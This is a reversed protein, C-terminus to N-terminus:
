EEDGQLRKEIWRVAAIVAAQTERRSPSSDGKIDARRILENCMQLASANRLRAQRAAQAQAAIHNDLTSIRERFDTEDYADWTRVIHKAQLERRAGSYYADITILTPTIEFDGEADAIAEADVSSFNPEACTATLVPKANPDNNFDFPYFRLIAVGATVEHRGLFGSIM